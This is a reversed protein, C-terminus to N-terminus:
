LGILRMLRYAWVIKEVNLRHICRSFPDRGMYRLAVEYQEDFQRRNVSGTKSQPHLRFQALPMNLILPPSISSMRLWLDYDMTYHLSTDLLGAQQGFERRWFTAPQPIYNERLMGRHSYRSLGWEKYRAVLPRIPQGKQDIIVCRGVLWKEDPQRTLEDAVMALAGPVYLDDANLWAIVDGTARQLGKNIADSQGTDAESSWSIRPDSQSKLWDVTGDTSGGDIVLWEITISGAQSLVSQGTQKLYDLRNLSPTVISFKVSADSSLADM